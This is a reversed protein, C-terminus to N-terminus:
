QYAVVIMAKESTTYTVMGSVLFCERITSSQRPAAMGLVVGARRASQASMRLASRRTVSDTFHFAGLKAM